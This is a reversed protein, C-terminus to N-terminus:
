KGKKGPQKKRTGSSAAKKKQGGTNKSKSDSEEILKLCDEYTLSAAEKDKPIKYNKKKYSVYPGWRGNLVFLDKNEEFTKITKKNDRERKEEILEIARDLEITMPDDIGKKLSAFKGDHRVYPGFRGIGVVVKKDEYTGLERPLELLKLAEEFTITEIHQERTLPAYRPKEEDDSSGLQVMPGYRGIRVSVPKGTKPDTGLVREGTNRVSKELTDEVQNHFPKYFEDIAKHWKIKGMAIEDFEQEVKATFDYSVVNPFYK